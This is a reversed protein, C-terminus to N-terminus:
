PAPAHRVGIVSSRRAHWVLFSLMALWTLAHLSGFILPWPAAATGLRAPQLMAFMSVGVLSAAVRRESRGSMLGLESARSIAIRFLALMAFVVLVDDYLRHYASFRAVIAIVGLRVWLDADRHRYTWVGLAAFLIASAPLMLDDRGIDTLWRHVNAYDGRATAVSHAVGLWQRIQVLPGGEQFRMAFVTLAGYGIGILLAPRMRWKWLGREDGSRPAFLILWLFPIAITIKVLAFIVCAAAVLDHTWTGSGRQVLLVGALLVPLVHLILQGNGLAVGTENMALLLLAALAREWGDRARSERVLLWTMWTLAFAATVAWLWRTPELPLWGLLPWLLPYTAPPYAASPMDRYVPLGAFWAHVEAYFLRLDIASTRGSRWVLRLLEDTLKAAALLAM